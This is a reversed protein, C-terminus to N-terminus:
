DFDCIIRLDDPDSVLSQLYPLTKSTFPEVEERLLRPPEHEHRSDTIWQDWDYDLLERLSVWTLNPFDWNPNRTYNITMKQSEASADVPLGRPSAISQIGFSNRVGALVSFLRYNRDICAPHSTYATWEADELEVHDIDLPPLLEVAEWVGHQRIEYTYTIDTGM